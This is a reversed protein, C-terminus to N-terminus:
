PFKASDLPRVYIIDPLKWSTFSNAHVEYDRQPHHFPVIKLSEVMLAVEDSRVENNHVSSQDVVVGQAIDVGEKNALSVNSCFSRASSRKLTCYILPYVASMRWALSSYQLFYLCPLVQSQTYFDCSHNYLRDRRMFRTRIVIHVLIDGSNKQCSQCFKCCCFLIMVIDNTLNIPNKEKKPPASAIIATSTLLLM